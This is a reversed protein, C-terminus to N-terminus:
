IDKGYGSGAKALITTNPFVYVKFQEPNMNKVPM